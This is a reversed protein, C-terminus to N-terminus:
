SPKSSDVCCSLIEYPNLIDVFRVLGEFDFVYQLFTIECLRCLTISIMTIVQM